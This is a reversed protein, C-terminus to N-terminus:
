KPPIGPREAQAESQAPQGHTAVAWQRSRRTEGNPLAYGVAGAERAAALLATTGGPELPTDFQLAALYRAGNEPMLASVRCRKVMARGRWNWGLTSMHVEVLGGPLLRSAAEICAGEQSVNLLIADRGPPLRLHIAGTLSGVEVRGSVRREVPVAPGGTLPAGM